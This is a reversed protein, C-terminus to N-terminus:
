QRDWIWRTDLLLFMGKNKINERKNFLTRHTPWDGEPGRSPVSISWPGHCSPSMSSDKYFFKKIDRCVDTRYIRIILTQNLIIFMGHLPKFIKRFTIYFLNHRTLIWYDSNLKSDTPVRKEGSGKIGSLRHVRELRSLDIRKEEM